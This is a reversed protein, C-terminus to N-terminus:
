AEEACTSGIQDFMGPQRGCTASSVDIRWSTRKGVTTRAARLKGKKVMYAVLSKSLGLRRAAESLGVWGAPASTGCLRVRVDDTLSIQWPAGPTAQRGALLGELLWRHITSTSVGLEDAAEDATFPGETPDRPPRKAQGPIAHHARLSAVRVKTFPNGLGSVRGQRNLIRAIQADDFDPALRRVLEIIDEATATKADKLRLRPVDGGTTAGGKWVIRVLCRNEESRIQVEEILCRLLRKRDRDETTPAHWITGLDSSLSRLRKIEIDGLPDIHRRAAAARHRVDELDHLRREWERELSRVVLRNEPEVAHFQREARQTEYEAKEIQIQWIRDAADQEERAQREAQLAVEVGAPRAAALFASVVLTDIRQSGVVQCDKGGLTDRAGRCRYQPTRGKAGRSSGGFNVLMPRGCIGCCVLGQLLARGERVAGRQGVESGKMVSNSRLRSRNELYREWPIYAFHHDHILVPWDERPRRRVKLKLRSGVSDDHEINRVTESRGLVYAGAFVPNRLVELISAYRPRRWEIPHSRAEVRRVPFSLGQEQWWVWVQRATGLEDFKRFVTRIAEAVAEDRTVVLQHIDDVDYGAPPTTMVVGRRALAWRAEIMRRISTDLEIQSVEGRIGLVMRDSDNSLDYVGHEDAILTDTWRCLFLLQSWDPGNRALRAGEISVVIGVEGRAVAAVLRAFGPRANPLAGTVGQDDDIVDVRERPWGCSVAWDMRSYQRQQSGLNHEVQYVSSQRVYICATRELHQRGVKGESSGNMAGREDNRKM